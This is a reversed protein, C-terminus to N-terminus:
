EDGQQYIIGAAMDRLYEMQIDVFERGLESEEEVNRLIEEKTYEGSGLSIGLDDSVVKIREIVLKKIDEDIDTM